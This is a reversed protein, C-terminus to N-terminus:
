WRRRRPAGRIRLSTSPRSLTADLAQAAIAGVKGEFSVRGYISAALAWFLLTVLVFVLTDGTSANPDSRAVKVISMAAISPLVLAFWGVLAYLAKGAWGTGIALGIATAIGAPVIVGMDLLFISWYMTLDPGAVPVRSGSVMGSFASLWRSVVFAALLFVAIAWGRSRRPLMAADVTSWARWLLAGSLVFLGLHVAISPQYTPYQPGVVYQVLMYAAYGTPGLALVPGAPHGRLTIIAAVIALPAILVMSIAELGLTENYVTETFPYNVAGLFLPGLLTNAALGAGLALMGGALWRDSVNPIGVAM